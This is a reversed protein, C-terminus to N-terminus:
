PFDGGGHAVVFVAGGGAKIVQAAQGKAVVVGCREAAPETQGGFELAAAGGRFIEKARKDVGTAMLGRQPVDSIPGDIHSGDVAIHQAGM